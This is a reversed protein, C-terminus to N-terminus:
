WHPRSLQAIEDPHQMMQEILGDGGRIYNADGEPFRAPVSAVFRTIGNIMIERGNKLYFPSLNSDNFGISTKGVSRVFSSMALSVLEGFGQGRVVAALTATGLVEYIQDHFKISVEHIRGFALLQEGKKALFYPKIWDENDSQPNIISESGFERRRTNNIVDLDSFVLDRGPITIVQAGEIM